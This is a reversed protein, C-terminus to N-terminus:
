KKLHKAIKSFVGIPDKKLSALMSIKSAALSMNMTIFEQLHKRATTILLTIIKSGM